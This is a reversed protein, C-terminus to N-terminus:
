TGEAPPAARGLYTGMEALLNRELVWTLAITIALFVCLEAVVEPARRVKPEALRMLLVAAVAPLAPAFSRLAHSFIDFSGFLGRLYYARLAVNVITQVGVGIAFGTLGWVFLLPIATILFSVMTIATAWAIPRTEGRARFYDDWNFGVHGAAETLGFAVLIPLAPRWREGIVYHIFDSAFLALGLGFPVAWILAVRNSKVFSERLLDLREQLACVVPYMTGSVVQDVRSAFQSITSALAIAGVGALGLAANGFFAASQTIVLASGVAVILPWSFSVYSRLKGRDLRFRLRYPSKWVTVVAAAWAGVLAGVILSWYGAGAAALAVATLTGVLPEIALLTRQKAFELRRSFIWSPAALMYAPLILAMALGPLLLESRGYVVAVIPAAALTLVMLVGNVVCQITFAQQFALEQDADNQQLYKDGVGVERFWWLTGLASMVVGWVGYDTRSLFRAIVLGRLLGVLGVFVSFGSNIIVGRAAHQRISRTRLVIGRRALLGRSGRPELSETEALQAGDSREAAQGRDVPQAM